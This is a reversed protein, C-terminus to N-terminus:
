TNKNVPLKGPAREVPGWVRLAKGHVQIQLNNDLRFFRIFGDRSFIAAVTPTDRRNSGESFIKM